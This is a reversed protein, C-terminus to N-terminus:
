GILTVLETYPPLLPDATYLRLPGAMAQAVLLRDFPDRHYPPLEVVRAAVEARVPLETFGTAVAASAVEEPRVAFDTRGLGAKIAIEWISAASFLVDNEPDELLARVGADLRGPEALAWLLVHTDLLLRM